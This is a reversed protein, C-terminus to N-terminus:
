AAGKVVAWRRLCLESVREPAIAAATEIMRCALQTLEDIAQAAFAGMHAEGASPAAVEDLEDLLSRVFAAQIRVARLENDPELQGDVSLTLVQPISIFTAM